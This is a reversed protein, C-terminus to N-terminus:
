GPGDEARMGETPTCWGPARGGLGEGVGEGVGEGWARARARVRAAPERVEERPQHVDARLLGGRAGQLARPARRAGLRSCDQGAQQVQRGRRCHRALRRRRAARAALLRAALLTGLRRARRALAARRCRRAASGLCERPVGAASGLCRSREGDGAADAERVCGRRAARRRPDDRTMESLRPCDRTM